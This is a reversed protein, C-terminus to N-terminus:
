KDEDETRMVLITRPDFRMLQAVKLIRGERYRIATFTLIDRLMRLPDLMARSARFADRLRYRLGIVAQITALYQSENEAAVYTFWHTFTKHCFIPRGHTPNFPEHIYFIPPSVAVMKGVWTTGSRHSGTVLIPSTLNEM